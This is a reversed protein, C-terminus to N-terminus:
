AARRNIQEHVNIAITEYEAIMKSIIMRRENYAEFAELAMGEGQPYFDRANPYAQSMVTLVDRLAHIVKLQQDLLYQGTTGNLHVTPTVLNTMNM